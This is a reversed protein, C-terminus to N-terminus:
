PLLVSGPAMACFVRVPAAMREAPGPVVMSVPHYIISSLARRRHIVLSFTSWVLYISTSGGKGEDAGCRVKEQM